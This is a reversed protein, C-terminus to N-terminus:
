HLHYQACMCVTRGRIPQTEWSALMLMAATSLRPATLRRSAQVLECLAPSGPLTGDNFNQTMLSWWPSCPKYYGYKMPSDLLAFIQLPISPAEGTSGFNLVQSTIPSNFLMPYQAVQALETLKDFWMQQKELALVAPVDRGILDPREESASTLPGQNSM